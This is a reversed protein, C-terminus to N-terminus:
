RPRPERPADLSEPASLEDHVTARPVEPLTWLRLTRDKSGTIVFTGDHAVCACTVALTHGDFRRVSTGASIDWLDFVGKSGTESGNATAPWSLALRGDPSLCLGEAHTSASPFTRQRGTATDWHSLGRASWALLGEGPALVAHAVAATPGWRKVPKKVHVDWLVLTHDGAKNADSEARLVCPRDGAAFCLALHRCGQPEAHDLLEGREMDWLCISGDGGRSLIRRGDPAFIAEQIGAGGRVQFRQLPEDRDTSWIQLVGDQTGTLFRPDHAAFTVCTVPADYKPLVRVANGRNVHWIRVTRDASASLFTRGDPALAVATVADDHGRFCRAEGVFGPPALPMETDAPQAPSLSKWALWPGLVAFLILVVAAIRIWLPSLWAVVGAPQGVAHSRPPLDVSSQRDPSLTHPQPPPTEPERSGGPAQPHLPPAATFRQEWAVMLRRLPAVLEPRGRCLEEATATRGEARLAKWHVLRRELRLAVVMQEELSETLEPCDRCLEAATPAHRERRGQRWQRLLAIIRPDTSM